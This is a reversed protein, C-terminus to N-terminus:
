TITKGEDWLDDSPQNVISYLFDCSMDQVGSQYSQETIENDLAMQPHDGFIVPRLASAPISFTQPKNQTVNCSVSANKVVSEEEPPYKMLGLMFAPTTKLSEIYCEVQRNHHM